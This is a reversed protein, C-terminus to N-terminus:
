RKVVRGLDEGLYILPPEYGEVGEGLAYYAKPFYLYIWPAMSYVLSDAEMFLSAARAPDTIRRALDVLSDARASHFFARNGGGGFNDSHFLPYLFNEADPYDAYWDLFFADVKGMSVAEKFASWERKVITVKVGVAQLYGQIAECILNGEPSDRQWLEIDLGDYGADAILKRAAVPDYPYPKRRRYGPLGPPVAGTARIAKGQLLVAILRDVDVAMNLARRVRVDALAGKRNNLGIYAVRLETVERIRGEYKEQGLFREIESSPVKLIDLGGSEFEAIRTFDEPIIRIRVRDLRRSRGPHYENPELVLEEGRKWSVLKWRGSGLPRSALEEAGGGALSGPVIMAAPMALLELFPRFPEDLEIVVTSDDPTVLGQLTKSEGAAFAKAGEIRELVWRRPSVADPSLVRRFSAAVDRSTVPSGDAFRMRRDLHFVYRRGGGDIDWSRAADPLIGGRPSFRVLSQYLMSCVFGESVDVVYAPDLKNPSTALALTL